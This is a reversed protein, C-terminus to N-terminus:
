AAAQTEIKDVADNFGKPTLSSGSVKGVNVDTIKKGIVQSKFGDSFMNQFGISVKHHAMVEVSADTVIDNELTLTVGLNENGDPSVYNGTVTYTGDKFQNMMVQGMREGNMMGNGNGQGMMGNGQGNQVTGSAVGNGAGSGDGLGNGMRGAGTNESVSSTNTDTNDNEPVTTVGCGTAVFALTLIASLILLNPIGNQKKM